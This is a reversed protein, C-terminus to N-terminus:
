GAAPLDLGQEDLVRYVSARSIALRKAIASAGLGQQRLQRVVFPDISAPRGRYVGRERAAEIGRRQRAKLFYKEVRGVLGFLTLMMEAMIDQGDFVIAPDVIRLVAGQEVVRRAVALLDGTDRAVRDPHLALLVDGKDLLRLATELNARGDLKSGNGVDCFVVVAGHQELATRQSSVDQGENTSIRGYGLVKAM